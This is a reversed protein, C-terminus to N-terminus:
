HQLISTDVGSSLIEPRLAQDLAEGPVKVEGVDPLDRWKVRNEGTEKKYLIMSKGLPCIMSGEDRFCKEGGLLQRMDTESGQLARSEGGVNSGSSCVHLSVM